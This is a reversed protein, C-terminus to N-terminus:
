CNITPPGWKIRVSELSLSILQRGGDVSLLMVSIGKRNEYKVCPMDLPGSRVSLCVVHRSYMM